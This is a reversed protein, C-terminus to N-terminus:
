SWEVGFPDSPVRCHGGVVAGLRREPKADDKARPGRAESGLPACAKRGVDTGDDFGDSPLTKPRWMRVFM